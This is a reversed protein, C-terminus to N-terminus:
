MRFVARRVEPDFRPVRVLSCHHARICPFRGSEEFIDHCSDEETTTYGRHDRWNHLNRIGNGACAVARWVLTKSEDGLANSIPHGIKESQIWLRMSDGVLLKCHERFDLFRNAHAIQYMSLRGDVESSPRPPVSSTLKPVLCNLRRIHIGSVGIGYESYM